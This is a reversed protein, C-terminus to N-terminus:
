SSPKGRSRRRRRRFSVFGAVGALIVLAAAIRKIHMSGLFDALDDSGRCHRNHKQGEEGFAALYSGLFVFAGGENRQGCDYQYAGIIIDDFGDGNVDGAGAAGYGMNARLQDNVFVAQAGASGADAIGSASGLFLFAAGENSTRKLVRRVQGLFSAGTNYHSAGVIVDDYGDGNVDGAGAVSHGMWAGAQDGALRTRATAPTGDTIGSASGYFVFAVGEDTEGADYRRAGVIVDDYGDSNVDGAGAVSVGMWAEPQNGEIRTSATAPTADAIGSASGLFVFAAGEDTEGADLTNAGVIVDDYGDGNVDGAGAVSVGMQAGAQGALLRTRATAPTGSAIGTASGHFIFAGGEDTQSADYRWAGVIVDDYGDGNVDGAGAVNVGMNAGAQGSGIRAHAGAPTADAIGSASGLFVFAAGSDTEGGDYRPAGVIIDAYGDGNVDGAGAVNEGLESDAQDSEIRANATAPTADTIGNASGYFVFAAGADTEGTDYRWAGVIVDDYGDGNVDGAGAVSFGFMAGRQDSELLTAADAALLPDIVIPYRAGTDNVQLQIHRASPVSLRVPLQIGAADVAKLQGYNLHRGTTTAIRVVEGSSSAEAGELSLELVLPSEGAVRKSLTFGQELGAPGNVYWELISGRRIVVKAGDRVVVGPTVPALSNARGMQELRLTFLQPGGKTVRDVVRIGTPEFYTRFAHRRSPAQLGVTNSSPRYESQTVHRRIAALWAAEPNMDGAAFPVAQRSQTEAHSVTDKTHGAIDAGSDLALGQLPTLMLVVSLNVARLRTQTRRSGGALVARWCPISGRSEASYRAAASAAFGRRPNM